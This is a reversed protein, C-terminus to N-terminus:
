EGEQAPTYRCLFSTRPLKEFWGGDFIVYWGKFLDFTDGHHEIKELRPFFRADPLRLKLWAEFAEVHEPDDLGLWQMAEVPTPISLYKM